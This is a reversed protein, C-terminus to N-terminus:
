QGGTGALERKLRAEAEPKRKVVIDARIANIFQAGYEESVLPSFEAQLQPILNPETKIDGQTIKDLSVVYWGQGAPAELRKATKEKMSFMLALPPPVRQGGQALERRRGGMQQPAPLTVGTERLAQALPVGKGVKAIVTDAVTRAQQVAREREFDAVVQGKIQTLPRPTAAIIRDLKALAFEREPVITEITAPEDPQTEFMPELVRVVAPDTQIGPKDPDIGNATIAGTSMVPLNNAKVIEDFTARDSLQDQIKAMLDALASATKEAKVAGMIEDRVAALPKGPIATIADVRVIHWGLGSRQPDSVGNQALTFAAGAATDSSLGAFAARTQAKLSVPELKAQKAADAFSTGAKVKAAFAQAAKQDQVIVQTLDRTESAAYRAANAKYYAALDADTPVIKDGLIRMGFVAYRIERREPVTYRALNRKYYAALEQDTPAAGKPMAGAPILAVTGNRSELSMAAYPRALAAPMRGAGFAPTLLQRAYLRALVMSRLQKMTLREEALVRDLQGQDFQGTPGRFEPSSAIEGDILKESIRVGQAHGFLRLAAADIVQSMAADFGGENVFTAMDLGPQQQRARSILSDARRKVESGPIGEGGVEVVTSDAGAGGGGSNMLGLMDGATFAVGVLLVFLFCMALGLKSNFISRIFTIM